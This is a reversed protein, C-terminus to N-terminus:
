GGEYSEEFIKIFIEDTMKIPDNNFLEGVYNRANNILKEFEKKEINYSKLYLKEDCYEKFIEEFYEYFMEKKPMNLYLSFIKSLEKFKNKLKPDAIREMNEYYKIAIIAIGEGHLIKDHYACIAHGLSHISLCGGYMDSCASFLSAVALNERFKENKLNSKILHLNKLCLRMCTEACSISFENANVSLYSEVAHFLCDLLQFFTNKYPLSCMLKPIIITMEPYLMESYLGMKKNEYTIVSFCNIESGTGASTNIVSIRLPKNANQNPNEFYKWYDLNTVGFGITKAVDITSGGGVAIIATCKNEISIKIGEDVEEKTPNGTVNSIIIYETKNRKLLDILTKFTNTFTVRKSKSTVILIRENKYENALNNLYEEGFCIKTPINVIM